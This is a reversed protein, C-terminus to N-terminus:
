IIATREGLIERVSFSSQRIRGGRQIQRDVKEKTEKLSNGIVCLGQEALEKLHGYAATELDLHGVARDIGYYLNRWLVM